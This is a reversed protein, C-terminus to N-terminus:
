KDSYFTTCIESMESSHVTIEVYVNSIVLTKLIYSM